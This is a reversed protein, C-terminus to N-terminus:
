KMLIESFNNIMKKYDEENLTFLCKNVWFEYNGNKKAILFKIAGDAFTFAYEKKSM